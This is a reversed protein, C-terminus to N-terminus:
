GTASTQPGTGYLGERPPLLRCNSLRSKMHSELFELSVLCLGELDKKLVTQCIDWIFNLELNFTDCLSLALHRQAEPSKPSSLFPFGITERQLVAFVQQKIAASYYSGSSSDLLLRQQSCRSFGVVGGGRWRLASTHDGGYGVAVLVALMLDSVQGPQNLTEPSALTTLSERKRGPSKFPM